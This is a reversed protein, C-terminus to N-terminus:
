MRCGTRSPTSPTRSKSRREFGGVVSFGPSSVMTILLVIDFGLLFPHYFALLFLGLMTTLVVSVGDLLLVATAKQITMIDFVRNALERPYEGRM